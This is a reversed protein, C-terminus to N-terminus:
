AYNIGSNEKHIKQSSVVPKSFLLVALSKSLMMTLRRNVLEQMTGGTQQALEPLPLLTLSSPFALPKLAPLLNM